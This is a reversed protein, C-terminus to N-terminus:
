SVSKIWGGIIRGIELIKEQLAFYRQPNIAKTEFSLRILIKLLDIKASLDYLIDIKKHKPSYTAALALELAQIIEECIKEGIAYRDIKPFYQLAKRFLQYAEVIKHVASVASIPPPKISTM